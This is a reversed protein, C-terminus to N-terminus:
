YFQIVQWSFPMSHASSAVFSTASLSKLMVGAHGYGYGYSSDYSSSTNVYNYTYGQGNLLVITKEPAVRSISVTVGSSTATSTGRQISKIIPIGKNITGWITSADLDSSSGIKGVIDMLIDFLSTKIVNNSLGNTIDNNGDLSPVNINIYELENIVEIGMKTTNISKYTTNGSELLGYYDIVIVSNDNNYSYSNDNQKTVKAISDKDYKNHIFYAM